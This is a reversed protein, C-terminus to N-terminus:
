EHPKELESLLADAVVISAKTIKDVPWEEQKTLDSSLFGVMAAKAFEERKTLGNMSGELWPAPSAPTDSNKM